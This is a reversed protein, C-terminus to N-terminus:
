NVYILFFFCIKRHRFVKKIYGLKLMNYVDEGISFDIYSVGALQIGKGLFWHFYVLLM